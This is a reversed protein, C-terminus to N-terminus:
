TKLLTFSFLVAIICRKAECMQCLPPNTMCILQPLVSLLQNAAQVATGILVDLLHPDTFANASKRECLCLAGNRECMADRYFAFCFNICFSVFDLISDLFFIFFTMQVFFCVSCQVVFITFFSKLTVAHLFTRTERSERTADHLCTFVPTVLSPPVEGFWM